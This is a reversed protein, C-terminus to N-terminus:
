DYDGGLITTCFATFEAATKILLRLRENEAALQPAACALAAVAECVSGESKFLSSAGSVWQIHEIGVRVLEKGGNDYIRDEQARAGEPWGAAEAMALLAPVDVRDPTQNTM